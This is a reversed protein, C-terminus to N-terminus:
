CYKVGDVEYYRQYDGSTVVSTDTLTLTDVETASDPDPNEIQINWKSGDPKLGWATVNGGLNLMASEWLNASAYEKLKQAAYGKAIAGVDLKLKSDAFSVTQAAGDIVLDNIDTHKAADKLLTMDPLQKGEERYEHWIELVGGLCINVAGNTKGYVEKGFLLLDITKKDAKVPSDAAKENIDKLSVVGKHSDYIDYLNNYEILEDHLMECHREFTNSDTDYAVVTSVTDFADIFTKEFRKLGRGCSCLTLTLSICITLSIVRKM